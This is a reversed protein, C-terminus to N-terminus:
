FKKRIDLIIDCLNTVDFANGVQYGAESLVKYKINSMYTFENYIRFGCLSGAPRVSPILQDNVNNRVFTDNAVQGVTAPYTINLTDLGSVNYVLEEFNGTLYRSTDQQYNKNIFYNMVLREPDGKLNFMVRIYDNTVICRLTYWAGSQINKTYYDGFGALFSTQNVGLDKNYKSVGLAMDFDYTGIGAYYYSDLVNKGSKPDLTESAKLIIEFKKGRYNSIQNLQPDFYVDVSVDFIFNDEDIMYIRRANPQNQSLSILNNNVNTGSQTGLIPYLSNNNLSQFAYVNNVTIIDFSDTSTSNLGLFLDPSPLRQLNQYIDSADSEYPIYNIQRNTNFDDVITEYTGQNNFFLDFDFIGNLNAGTVSSLVDNTTVHLNTNSITYLSPDIIYNNLTIERINAKWDQINALFYPIDFVLDSNVYNTIAYSYNELVDWGVDGANYVFNLNAGVNLPTNALVIYKDFLKYNQPPIKEIIGTVKINEIFYKNWSNLNYTSQSIFQAVSPIDLLININSIPQENLIQTMLGLPPLTITEEGQFSRSIYNAYELQNGVVFAASIAPNTSKPNYNPNAVLVESIDYWSIPVYIQKCINVPALSLNQYKVGNVKLNNQEADSLSNADTSTFGSFNINVQIVAYYITNPTIPGDTLDITLSRIDPSSTPIQTGYFLKAQNDTVESKSTYNIGSVIDAALDVQEISFDRSRWVDTPAWWNFDNGTLSDLFERQNLNLTFVNNRTLPNPSVPEVLNTTLNMVGSMFYRVQLGQEASEFPNPVNVNVATSGVSLFSPDIKAFIGNLEILSPTNNSQQAFQRGLSYNLIAENLIGLPTFITIQFHGPFKTSPTLAYQSPKYLTTNCPLHFTFSGWINVQNNFTTSYRSILTNIYNCSTFQVGIVRRGEPIDVTIPVFMKNSFISSDLLTLPPSLIDFYNSMPYVEEWVGDIAFGTPNSSIYQQLLTNFNLSYCDINARSVSSFNDFPELNYNVLDGSFYGPGGSAAFSSSYNDGSFIGEEPLFWSRQSGIPVIIKSILEQDSAFNSNVWNPDFDVTYRTGLSQPIVANNIYLTDLSGAQETTIAYDSNISFSGSITENFVKQNTEYNDMRVESPPVTELYKPKVEIEKETENYLKGDTDFNHLTVNTFEVIGDTIGLGYYGSTNTVSYSESYVENGMSDVTKVKSPSVNFSFNQILPLWDVETVGAINNNGKLDEIDKYLSNFNAKERLFASLSTENVMLLVEYEKEDYFTFVEGNCDMIVPEYVPDNTYSFSINQTVFQNLVDSFIIKSLSFTSRDANISFTYFDDYDCNYNLGAKIGRFAIFVDNDPSRYLNTKKEVEKFKFSVDFAFNHVQETVSTVICDKKGNFPLDYVVSLSEGDEIISPDIQLVSYNDPNFRVPNNPVIDFHESFDGRETDLVPSGDDKLIQLIIAPSASIGLNNALEFEVWDLKDGSVAVTGVQDYPFEITESVHYSDLIISNFGLEFHSSSNDINAPNVDTWKLQLKNHNFNEYGVFNEEISPKLVVNWTKTWLDKTKATIGFFSLFMSINPPTGKNQFFDASAILFRRLTDTEADTATGLDIKEFIDYNAFDNTSLNYGIKRSYSPNHGLTAAWYELYQPDIRRLDILSALGSTDAHMRDFFKGVATLLDDLQPTQIDDYIPYKDKIFKFFRSLIDVTQTLSQTFYFNEGAFSFSESWVKLTVYQTTSELFKHVVEDTNYFSGDSFIWQIKTIQTVVYSSLDLQDKTVNGDIQLFPSDVLFGTESTNNFSANQNAYIGADSVTFNAKFSM